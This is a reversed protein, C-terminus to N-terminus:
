YFGLLHLLNKPSFKVDETLEQVSEDPMKMLNLLSLAANTLEVFMDQGHKLYHKDEQWGTDKMWHLCNEVQWHGRILRLLCAASLMLSTIFYRTETTLKGGPERVERDVRV